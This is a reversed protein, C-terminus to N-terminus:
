DEESGRQHAPLLSVKDTIYRLGINLTMAGFSVAGVSETPMGETLHPWVFSVAIWMSSLAVTTIAILGLMSCLLVARETWPWPGQIEPPYARWKQNKEYLAQLFGFPWSFFKLSWEGLTNM